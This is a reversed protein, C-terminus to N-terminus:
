QAGGTRGARLVDRAREWHPGDKPFLLRFHTDDEDRTMLGTAEAAAYFVPIRRTSSRTMSVVNDLDPISDTEEALTGLYYLFSMFASNLHRWDKGRPATDIWEERLIRRWETAREVAAIAEPTPPTASLYPHAHETM